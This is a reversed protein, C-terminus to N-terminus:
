RTACTGEFTTSFRTQSEILATVRLEGVQLVLDGVGAARVLLVGDLGPVVQALDALEEVAVGVVVALDSLGAADVVGVVDPRPLFHSNGGESLAHTRTPRVPM